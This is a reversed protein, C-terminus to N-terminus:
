RAGADTSGLAKTMRVHEIDAEIFTEGEPVYSQSAYFAEVSRQANLLVLRTGRETAIRESGALLRAGVGLRRVRREVAM